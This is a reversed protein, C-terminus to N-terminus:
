YTQLWGGLRYLDETFTEFTLTQEEIDKGRITAVVTDKHVDIGCGREIIFPFEVATMTM